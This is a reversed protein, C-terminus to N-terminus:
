SCCGDGTYINFTEVCRGTLPNYWEGESVVRIGYKKELTKFGTAM